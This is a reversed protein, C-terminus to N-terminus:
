NIQQRELLCRFYTMGAIVAGDLERRMLHWEEIRKM